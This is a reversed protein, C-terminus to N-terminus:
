QRSALQARVADVSSQLKRQSQLLKRQAKRIALRIRAAAIAAGPAARAAGPVRRRIEPPVALGRIGGLRPAPRTAGPPLGPSGGFRGVPLAPGRGGTSEDPLASGAGPPPLPAARPIPRRSSSRTLM